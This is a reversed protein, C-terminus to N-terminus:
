FKRTKDYNKKRRKAAPKEEDELYSNSADDASHNDGDVDVHTEIDMGGLSSIVLWPSRATSM